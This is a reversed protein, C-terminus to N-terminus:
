GGIGARLLRRWGTFIRALRIGKATLRCQGEAEIALREDLLDVIRPMVLFDDGIAQYLDDRTLGNPEAKAVLDIMVLTPSEVEVAPYNMVYVCAVALATVVAQVWDSLRPPLLTTLEPLFAECAALLCAGGCICAVLLLILVQGTARPRAVRWLAVHFAFAFFFLGAALFVSSM